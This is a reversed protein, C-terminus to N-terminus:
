LPHGVLCRFDGGVLPQPGTLGLRDLVLHGVAAVVRQGVVVPLGFLGFLVGRGVPVVALLLFARHRIEQPLGPGRPAPRHVARRPYEFSSPVATLVSVTLRPGRETGSIGSACSSRCSGGTSASGAARSKLERSVMSGIPM